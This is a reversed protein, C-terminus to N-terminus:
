LVYIMGENRAVAEEMEREEDTRATSGYRQARARTTKRPGVFPNDSAGDLEPVRANSDTFVEIDAPSSAATDDYLDFGRMSSARSKKIKRPTPM